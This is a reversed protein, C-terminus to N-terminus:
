QGGIAEQLDKCHQIIGALNTLLRVRILNELEVDGCDNIEERCLSAADHPMIYTVCVNPQSRSVLFVDDIEEHRILGDPMGSIIKKLISSARKIAEKM